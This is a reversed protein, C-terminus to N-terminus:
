ASDRIERVGQKRLYASVQKLAAYGGAKIRNPVHARELVENAKSAAVFGSAADKEIRHLRWDISPIDALEKLDRSRTRVAHPRGKSAMMSEVGRPCCRLSDCILRGRLARDELLVGAVKRPVSRGLAALYIGESSFGKGTKKRPKRSGMFAKAKAQEGIGMGCEYGDLGAAVLAPGFVGQRWAITPIGASRLHRAGLILDLVKGYSESGDGMPSFQVAITQPGIDAAAFTFRDLATQWDPRHLFGRLQASLVPMIPLRVGDARLRRATRGIAAVSAEFEPSEPKEAYFYPPIVVTAGHAVQFEVVEAVLQDLTFPNTLCGADLAETRGFEVEQIWPDSSDVQCQLLPTLPDVILPTGSKAASEAFAPQRPADAANLVLRSIPRFRMGASPALLDEIVKHDNLSPRILLEAKSRSSPNTEM